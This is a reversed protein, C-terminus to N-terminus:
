ATPTKQKAIQDLSVALGRMPYTLMGLLRGILVEKSPMKAMELFGEKNIFKGGFVAGWFQLAPNKKSFDYLNKSIAYADGKGIVLGVSGEMAYMDVNDEVYGKVARDIITKKTVLYESELPRIGRKLTQMQGVSLGKEGPKAFTTFVTITSDPLKGQLNKLEVTKQSRSKM